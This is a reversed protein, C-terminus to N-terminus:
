WRTDSNYLTIAALMCFNFYVYLCVNLLFFLVKIFDFEIFDFIGVM